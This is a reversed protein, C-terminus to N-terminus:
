IQKILIPALFTGGLWLVSFLVVIALLRVGSEHYPKFLNFFNDIFDTNKDELKM